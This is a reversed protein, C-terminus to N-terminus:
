SLSSTLQAGDGVKTSRGRIQDAMQVQDMRAANLNEAGFLEREVTAKVDLTAQMVQIIEPLASNGGQEDGIVGDSGVVQDLKAFFLAYGQEVRRNIGGLENIQQANIQASTQGRFGGHV